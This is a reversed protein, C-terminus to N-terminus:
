TRLPIGPETERASVFGAALGLLLYHGTFALVYDALGHILLGLLVGLLALPEGRTSAEPLALLRYGSLLGFAFTLVLALAGLSGTTAAAELLTNNAFVRRDWFPQRLYRGYLWRFNDPGVGLLPHQRWMSVAAKWLEAREPRFGPGTGLPEADGAADAAPPEGVVVGVSAPPVGQGSFWAAREHVMDWILLYRGVRAPAVILAEVVASQGPELGRPPNTRGGDALTSRAVDYWHYSLQFEGGRAWAKRGANTIRVRARRSEGPRM